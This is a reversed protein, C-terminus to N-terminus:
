YIMVYRKPFNYFFGSIKRDPQGYPNVEGGKRDPTKHKKRLHVNSRQKHNYM